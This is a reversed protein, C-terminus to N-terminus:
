CSRGTLPLDLEMESLLAGRLLVQNWDDLMAYGQSCVNKDLILPCFQDYFDHNWMLMTDAGLENIHGPGYESYTLKNTEPWFQSEKAFIRKLLQSPLGTERSAQVLYPDFTNQWLRVLIGPRRWDANRLMDM